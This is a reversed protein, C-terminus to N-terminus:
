REASQTPNDTRAVGWAQSNSRPPPSMDCLCLLIFHAVDHRLHLASLPPAPSCCLPPGRKIYARPCCHGLKASLHKHGILVPWHNRECLNCGQEPARENPASQSSVMGASSVRSEVPHFRFAGGERWGEYRRREKEAKMHRDNRGEANRTM